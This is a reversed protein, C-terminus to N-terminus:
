PWRAITLLLILSFVYGYFLQMITFSFVDETVTVIGHRSLTWGSRFSHLLPSGTMLLILASYFKDLGKLISPETSLVVPLSGIFSFLFVGVVRKYSCSVKMIGKRVEAEEKIENNFQELEHDRKSLECMIEAFNEPYKDKDINVKVDLLDELTYQSYDIKISIDGQVALAENLPM